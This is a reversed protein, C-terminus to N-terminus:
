RSTGAGCTLRQGRGGSPARDGQLVEAARHGRSIRREAIAVARGARLTPCHLCCSAQDDIRPRAFRAGHRGGGALECIGRRDRKRSRARSGLGPPDRARSDHSEGHGGGHCQAQRHNEGVDGVAVRQRVVGSAADHEVDVGSVGEDPAVQQLESAGDHGRFRAGEEPENRGRGVHQGARRVCESDLEADGEAEGGQEEEHEPQGGPAHAAGGALGDDNQGDGREDQQAIAIQEPLRHAPRQLHGGRDEGQCTGRGPEGGPSGARVPGPCHDQEAVGEEV